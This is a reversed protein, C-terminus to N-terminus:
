YVFRADPSNAWSAITNLEALMHETKTDMLKHFKHAAKEIWKMRSEFDEIIMDDPAISKLEPDRESCQHTFVLEYRPAAWRVLWHRERAAWKSFTPNESYTNM